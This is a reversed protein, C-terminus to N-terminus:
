KTQRNDKVSTAVGSGGHSILPGTAAVYWCGRRLKTAGLSQLSPDAGLRHIMLLLPLSLFHHPQWHRQILAEGHSHIIEVLVNCQM